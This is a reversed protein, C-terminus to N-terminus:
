NRCIRRLVITYASWFQQSVVGLLMCREAKGTGSAKHVDKNQTNYDGDQVCDGNLMSRCKLAIFSTVKSIDVAAPIDWRM